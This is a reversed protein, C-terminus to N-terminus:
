LQDRDLPNSAPKVEGIFSEFYEDIKMNAQYAAYIQTTFLRFEPQRQSLGPVISNM